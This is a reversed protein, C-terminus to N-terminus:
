HWLYVAAGELPACDGTAEVLTLEITLPVGTATGSMTGFSKTIDRRVVGSDTLV